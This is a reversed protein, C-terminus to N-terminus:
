RRRQLPQYLVTVMAGSSAADETSDRFEQWTYDYAV